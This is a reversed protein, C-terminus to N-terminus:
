LNESDAWLGMARNFTREFVALQGRPHRGILFLKGTQYTTFALSIRQEALWGGFGRSSTVELWENQPQTTGAAPRPTAAAPAAAQAPAPAASPGAPAGYWSAPSLAIRPRVSTVPAGTGRNAAAKKWGRIT